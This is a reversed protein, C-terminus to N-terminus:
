MFNTFHLFLLLDSFWTLDLSMLSFDPFLLLLKSGLDLTRLGFHIPFYLLRVQILTLSRIYQLSIYVKSTENTLETKQVTFIAQRSPECEYNSIVQVTVLIHSCRDELIASM